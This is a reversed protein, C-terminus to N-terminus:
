DECFYSSYFLYFLIFLSVVFIRNSTLAPQTLNLLHWFNRRWINLRWKCAKTGFHILSASLLLHLAIGDRITTVEGLICLCLMITFCICHLYFCFYLAFADYICQVYFSISGLFLFLFHHLFCLLFILQNRPLTYWWDDTQNKVEERKKMEKLITWYNRGNRRMTWLQARLRWWINEEREQPINSNTQLKIGNVKSKDAANCIWLIKVVKIWNNCVTNKSVVFYIQPNNHFSGIHGKTSPFTFHTTYQKCISSSKLSFKSGSLGIIAFM